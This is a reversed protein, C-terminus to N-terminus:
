DAFAINIRRNQRGKNEIKGITVPGIEATNRIHTGGCPQLDIQGEPGAIDIIRVRGMGMPPKVSMTRVLEPKAELEEDGIWRPSVDIGAAILENLRAEIAAKDLASGPVDFDLRGRGDSVQGGTVAGPVVACLLHLCSHMRMLRHRREWDIEATLQAGPEPLAADPAPVHVVEDPGEGKVTDIIPVAAGSGLRLVGTDGPQGGGTPYFVTRDLRIGREDVSEVRAPCSRLYGDERFLLETM